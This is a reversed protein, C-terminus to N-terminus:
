KANVREKAYKETTEVLKKYGAWLPNIVDLRIMAWVTVNLLDALERQTEEPTGHRYAILVEIFEERLKEIIADMDHPTDNVQHFEELHIMYTSFEM